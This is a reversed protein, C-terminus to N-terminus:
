RTVQCSSTRTSVFLYVDPNPDFPYVEHHTANMLVIDELCLCCPRVAGISM